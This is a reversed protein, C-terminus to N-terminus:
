PVGFRFQQNMATTALNNYWPFWYETSLQEAPLGMLESYSTREGTEKWIVRMAAIIKKGDTSVIRIPGNNIAYSAQLSVGPAINPYSELLTEGVYVEITTSTSDANGFRFQQTMATTALNNYWPFWYESSLQEAPLGMLESYSTREGTEKWIVRMAAIIKKGDTSVIRIPGNNIAYSAQLSVGPAINPYSELMTEGVYVEITTSTSDANGFRFQQNMATTALNNYWPFWYESSLQEAPLGMLESYSTREGTEQWIVRMAAIIKKGDTSVVRIPGNNIAYSAQLSVGPAINPYSELLTDGVYVEITTSTSDANGFRFQQNMAAKALNNYWPFWYETSLQEAPLGMLESYSTRQGPEQWIVRMAAILPLGNTSTIQVPGNNVAYSAQLSEGPPVLYSGRPNGGGIYVDVNTGLDSPDDQAVITYEVSDTYGAVFNLPASEHNLWVGVNDDNEDNSCTIYGQPTIQQGLDQTDMFILANPTNGQWGLDDSHRVQVLPHAASLSEPMDFLTTGCGITAFDATILSGSQGLYQAGDSDHYNEDIYMSSFQVLKFGEHNSQRTPSLSFSNAVSYTEMVQMRTAATEPDPFTISFTIDLHYAPWYMEQFDRAYITLQLPGKGDTPSLANTDIDIRSIQLDHFYRNAQDLNEWYAPGLIFSTGYPLDYPILRIYGTNYIAAVEPWTNLGEKKHGYKLLRTTGQYTGNLYVSMESREAPADGMEIWWIGNDFVENSVIEYVEGSTFNGNGTGPGGLPNNDGDIISDDDLVDLRITGSGTGTNVSVTHIDGLGSVVTVSAGSIAGTTALV